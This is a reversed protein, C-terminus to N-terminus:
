RDTIGLAAPDFDHNALAVDFDIATFANRAFVQGVVLGNWELIVGRGDDIVVEANEASVDFWYPLDSDGYSRPDSWPLTLVLPVRMRPRGAVTTSTAHEWQPDWGHILREPALLVTAARPWNLTSWEDRPDNPPQTWYVRKDSHTTWCRLQETVVEDSIVGSDVGNKALVRTRFTFPPRVLIESRSRWIWNAAEPSDPHPPIGVYFVGGGRTAPGRRAKLLPNTSIM